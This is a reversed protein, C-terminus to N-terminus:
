LRGKKKPEFFRIVRGSDRKILGLAEFHEVAAAGQCITVAREIQRDQSELFRMLSSAPHITGTEQIDM